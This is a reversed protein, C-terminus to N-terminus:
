RQLWGVVAEGYEVYAIGLLIGFFGLLMGIYRYPWDQRYAWWLKERFTMEELQDAITPNQKGTFVIGKRLWVWFYGIVALM